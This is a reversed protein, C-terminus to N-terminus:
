SEQDVLEGAPDDAGAVPVAPEAVVHVTLYHGGDGVTVAGEFEMLRETCGVHHSEWLAGSSVTRWLREVGVGAEWPLVGPACRCVGILLQDLDDTRGLEVESFLRSSGLAQELAHLLAVAPEDGAPHANEQAATRLKHFSASDM